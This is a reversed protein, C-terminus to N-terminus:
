GRIVVNVNKDGAELPAVGSGFKFHLFAHKACKCSDEATRGMLLACPATVRSAFGDTDDPLCFRIQQRVNFLGAAQFFNRLRDVDRWKVKRMGETVLSAGRKM